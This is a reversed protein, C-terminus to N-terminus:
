KGVPHKKKKLSKGRKRAISGKSKSKGEGGLDKNAGAAKARSEGGKLHSTLNTFGVGFQEHRKKKGTTDADKEV